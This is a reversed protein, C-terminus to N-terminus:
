LRLMNQYEGGYDTHGWVVLKTQMGNGSHTTVASEADPQDGDCNSSGDCSELPWLAHLILYCSCALWNFLYINDYNNNNNNNHHHNNNHM